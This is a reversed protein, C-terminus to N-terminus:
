MSSHCTKRPSENLSVQWIQETGVKQFYSCKNNNSILVVTNTYKTSTSNDCGDGIDVIKSRKQKISYPSTLWDYRGDLRKSVLKM